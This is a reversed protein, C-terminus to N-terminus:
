GSFRDSCSNQFDTLLQRISLLRTNQSKQSVIYKEILNLENYDHKCQPQQDPPLSAIAPYTRPEFEDSQLEKCRKWMNPKNMNM